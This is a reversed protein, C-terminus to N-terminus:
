GTHDIFVLEGPANLSDALAVLDDVPASPMLAWGEAPARPTLLAPGAARDDVYVSSEM